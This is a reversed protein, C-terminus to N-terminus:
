GGICGCEEEDQDSTLITKPFEGRVRTYNVEKSRTGERWSKGNPGVRYWFISQAAFLGASMTVILISIFFINKKM